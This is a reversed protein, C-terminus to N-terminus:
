KFAAPLTATATTTSRATNYIIHDNADLAGTGVVFQDASLTAGAAGTLAAFASKM